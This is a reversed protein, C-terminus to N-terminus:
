SKDANAVPSICTVVVVPATLLTVFEAPNNDRIPSAVPVLESTNLVSGMNTLGANPVGDVTVKVLAVPNGIVVPTDPNAALTAVNRAVGDLALKAAATVSSVPVSVNTSLVDGVNTM